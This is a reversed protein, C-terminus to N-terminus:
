VKLFSPTQLPAFNASSHPAMQCNFMSPSKHHVSLLLIELKPSASAVVNMCRSRKQFMKDNINAVNSCVFSNANVYKANRTVESVQANCSLVCFYVLQTVEEPTPGCLMLRLLVYRTLLPCLAPAVILGAECCNM